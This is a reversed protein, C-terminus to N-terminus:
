ACKIQLVKFACRGVGSRVRLDFTATTTATPTEDAFPARACRVYVCCFAQLSLLFGILLFLLISISLMRQTGTGQSSRFTCATRLAEIREHTHEKQAHKNHNNHNNQM